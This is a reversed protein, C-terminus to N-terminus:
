QNNAPSGIRLTHAPIHWFAGSHVFVAQWASPRLSPCLPMTSDDCHWKAPTSHTSLCEHFALDCPATYNKSQSATGIAGSM